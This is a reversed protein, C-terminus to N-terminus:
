RTKDVSVLVSRMTSVSLVHIGVWTRMGMAEVLSRRMAAALSMTEARWAGDPGVSRGESAVACRRVRCHREVMKM